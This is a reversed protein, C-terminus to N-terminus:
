EETEKRLKSFKEFVVELAAALKEQDDAAFDELVIACLQEMRAISQQIIEASRATLTILVERRDTPNQERKLMGKKVLIEVSESMTAPSLKMDLALRKLTTGNPNEQQLQWVNKVINVQRLTMDGMLQPGMPNSQEHLEEAIGMFAHFVRTELKVKANKNM